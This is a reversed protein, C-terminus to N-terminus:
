AGEAYGIGTDLPGDASYKLVSIGLSEYGRHKMIVYAFGDPAQVVNLLFAAFGAADSAANVAGDREIIDLRAFRTLSADTREVVFGEGHVRIWLTLGTQARPGVVWYARVFLRTDADPALRFAELHYVIKAKGALVREDYTSPRAQLYGPAFVSPLTIRMQSDILSELSQRQANTLEDPRTISPSEDLTQAAKRSLALFYRAGENQFTPTVVRAVLALQAHQADFGAAAGFREVVAEFRRGDSQVIWRSGKAQVSPVDALDDPIGALEAGFTALPRGLSKAGEPQAVEHDVLIAVHTPDMTYAMYEKPVDPEVIMVDTRVQTTSFSRCAQLDCLQFGVEIALVQKESGGPPVEVPVPISLTKRYARVSVAHAGVPLVVRDPIPYTPAERSIFYTAPRDVVRVWAGQLTDVTEAPVYTGRRFRWM